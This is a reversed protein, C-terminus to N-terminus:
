NSPIDVFLDDSNDDIIGPFDEAAVGMITAYTAGPGNELAILRNQVAGSNSFEYEPRTLAVFDDGEAKYLKFDEALVRRAPTVKRQDSLGGPVGNPGYGVVLAKYTAADTSSELWALGYNGTEPDFYKVLYVVYPNRWPDAPWDLPEADAPANPMRMRVTYGRAGLLGRSRSSPLYPGQWSDIIKRASLGVRRITEDPGTTTPDDWDFFGFTDFDPPLVYTGASPNSGGAEMLAAMSYSLYGIKPYVGFDMKVTALVHALTRIDLISAKRKSSDVLYQISVVALASFLSILTAIVLIEILTFGRRRTARSIPNTSM